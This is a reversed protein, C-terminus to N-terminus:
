AKGRCQPIRKGEFDCHMCGTWGCKVCGPGNCYGGSTVFSDIYKGDRKLAHGRKHALAFWAKRWDEFDMGETILTPGRNRGNKKEM